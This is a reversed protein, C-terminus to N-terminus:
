SATVSSNFFGGPSIVCWGDDEAVTFNQMWCISSCPPVTHSNSVYQVNHMELECIFNSCTLAVEAKPEKGKTEKFLANM